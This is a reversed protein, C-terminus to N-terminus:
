ITTCSLPAPWNPGSKASPFCSAPYLILQISSSHVWHSSILFLFQSAQNQILRWPRPVVGGRSPRKTVTAALLSFRYISCAFFECPKSGPSKPSRSKICWGTANWRIGLPLWEPRSAWQALPTAIAQFSTETRVRCPRHPAIWFIAIAGVCNIAPWMLRGRLLIDVVLM